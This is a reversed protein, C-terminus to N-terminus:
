FSLVDNFTYFVGREEWNRRQSRTMRRQRRKTPVRESEKVRRGELGEETLTYRKIVAAGSEVPSVSVWVLTTFKRM